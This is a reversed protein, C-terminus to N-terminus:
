EMNFQLFYRWNNKFPQILKYYDRPDYELDADQIIILEGKAFKSASQIAAGKGRNKGHYIVRDVKTSLKKIVQKTGDTSGDDVLIIQKKLLLKTQFNTVNTIVVVILTEQVIETVIVNGKRM